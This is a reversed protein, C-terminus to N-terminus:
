YCGEMEKLMKECSGACGVLKRVIRHDVTLKGGSFEMGNM